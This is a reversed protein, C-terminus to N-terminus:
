TYGYLGRVSAEGQSLNVINGDATRISLSFDDNVALARGRMRTGRLDFLVERGASICSSRYEELYERKKEPFDDLMSDLEEIMAAALEARSVSRGTEQEISSAIERIEEPFDEPTESVNVGIGIIVYQVSFSEAEFSLESLIGCIKKRNMLLDNVWKIEPRAKSVREIARCVAVATWATIMPVDNASIIAPGNEPRFLVSLYIGKDKPSSFSRGQRGRGGTQEGAILAHRDGAGSSALARLKLNTSDVTDLCTLNKLREAPLFAGLGISDLRDPAGTLRYGRRTVAEIDFGDAKLASVANSVAM